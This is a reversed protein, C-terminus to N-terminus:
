NRLSRVGASVKGRTGMWLSTGTSPIKPEILDGDVTFGALCVWVTVGKVGLTETSTLEIWLVWVKPLLFFPLFRFLFGPFWYSVECDVWLSLLMPFLFALYGQRNHPPSRKEFSHGRWSSIEWNKFDLGAVATSVSGKGEWCCNTSWINFWPLELEDSSIWIIGEYVM